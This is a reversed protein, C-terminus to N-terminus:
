ETKKQKERLETPAYQNSADVEKLSDWRGEENGPV